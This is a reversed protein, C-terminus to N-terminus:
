PAQLLDTQLGGFTFMLLTCCSKPCYLGQVAISIICYRYSIYIYIYICLIYIYILVIRYLPVFLPAGEPKIAMSSPPKLGGLFLIYIYEDFPVMM